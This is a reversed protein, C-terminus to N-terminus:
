FERRGRIMGCMGWYGGGVESLLRADLDVIEHSPEELDQESYIESFQEDKM